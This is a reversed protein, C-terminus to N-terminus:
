TPFKARIQFVFYGVAFYDRQSIGGGRYRSSVASPLWLSHDQPCTVAATTIRTLTPLNTHNRPKSLKSERIQPLFHALLRGECTNSIDREGAHLASMGECVLRRM